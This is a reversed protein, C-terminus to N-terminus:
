SSSGIEAVSNDLRRQHLRKITFFLLVQAIMIYLGTVSIFLFQKFYRLGGIPKYAGTFRFQFYIEKSTYYIFLSMIGAFFIFLIWFFIRRKFTMERGDTCFRTLFLNHLCNIVVVLLMIITLAFFMKPRGTNLSQTYSFLVQSCCSVVLTLCILNIINFIKWHTNM